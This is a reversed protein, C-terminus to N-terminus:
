PEGIVGILRAHAVRYAIEAQILELESKATAAKAAALAAADRPVLEADQRAKVMEGALGFAQKAQEYGVFAQVAELRVKEITTRVNSSALAIQIGRQDRVRRRKGWDIFTYSASV